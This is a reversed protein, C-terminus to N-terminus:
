DWRSFESVQIPVVGLTKNELKYLFDEMVEPLKQEVKMTKKVMKKYEGMRYSNVTGQPKQEEAKKIIDDLVEIFWQSNSESSIKHMSAAQKVAEFFPHGNPIDKWKFEYSDYLFYSYPTNSTDQRKIWRALHATMSNGRSICGTRLQKIVNKIQRDSFLNFDVDLTVSKAYDVLANPIIVPMEIRRM